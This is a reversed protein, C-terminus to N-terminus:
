DSAEIDAGVIDAGVIDAGISFGARFIAEHVDSVAFINRKMRCIAEDFENLCRQIQRKTANHNTLLNLLKYRLILDSTIVACEGPRCWFSGHSLIEECVATMLKRNNAPVDEWPVASERRTEYGYSPALREYTEHFKKALDESTVM